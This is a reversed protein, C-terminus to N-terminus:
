RILSEHLWNYHQKYEYSQCEFEMAKLAAEFTLIQM